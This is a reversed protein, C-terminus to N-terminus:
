SVGRVHKLFAPKSTFRYLPSRSRARRELKNIYSKKYEGETDEPAAFILRQVVAVERQLKDVKEALERVLTQTTM